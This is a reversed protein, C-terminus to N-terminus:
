IMYVLMYIIMHVIYLSCIICITNHLTTLESIEPFKRMNKQFKEPFIVTSKRFLEAWFKRFNTTYFKLVGAAYYLANM